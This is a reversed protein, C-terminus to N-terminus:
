GLTIERHRGLQQLLSAEAELAVRSGLHGIRSEANTPRPHSAEQKFVQDDLAVECLVCLPAISVREAQKQWTVALQPVPLRGHYYRGTFRV